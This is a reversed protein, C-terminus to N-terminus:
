SKGKEINKRVKWDFAIKLANEVALAGGEIFFAHKLYKPIAIKNFTNVFDAYYTNYVDSLTPKSLAVKSLLEKNSLITPHNYGISGSAFMSFMDLYKKGSVHDVIWSGYSNELDIILDFGDALINKSLIKKVNNM